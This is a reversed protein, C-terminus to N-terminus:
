KLHLNNDGISNPMRLFFFLLFFIKQSVVSYNEFFTSGGDEPRPFKFDRVSSTFHSLIEIPIVFPALFHLYLQQYNENLAWGAIYCYNIYTYIYIHICIDENRIPISFTFLTVNRAYVNYFNGSIPLLYCTPTLCYEPM